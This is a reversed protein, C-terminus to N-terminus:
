VDKQIQSIIDNIPLLISSRQLSDFVRKYVYLLQKTLEELNSPRKSGCYPFELVQSSICCMSTMWNLKEADVVVVASVDYNSLLDMRTSRERMFEVLNNNSVHVLLNEELVKGLMKRLMERASEIGHHQWFMVSIEFKDILQQMM